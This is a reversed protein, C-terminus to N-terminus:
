EDGERVLAIPRHFIHLGKLGLQLGELLFILVIALSELPLHHLQVLFVLHIGDSSTERHDELDGDEHGQEVHEVRRDFYTLGGENEPDVVKGVLIGIIEKRDNHAKGHQDLLLHLGGGHIGRLGLDEQHHGNEHSEQKYAKRRPQDKVHDRIIDQGNALLIECHLIKLCPM